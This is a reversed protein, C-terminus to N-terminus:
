PNGHFVDSTLLAVLMRVQTDDLRSGFAPMIGARGNAITEYLAEDSDGYLWDGDILSPAGILANGEGGVGHCAVCLQNYQVQGPHGETSGSGLAGVYSAVSRVGDDGLVQEWGVM